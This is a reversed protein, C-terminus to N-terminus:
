KKLVNIDRVKIMGWVGSESWVGQTDHLVDSDDGQEIYTYSMARCTPM